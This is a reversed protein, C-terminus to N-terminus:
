KGYTTFPLFIMNVVGMLYHFKQFKECPLFKTIINAVQNNTNIYDILIKTNEYKEHVFHYQVDTHKSKKHFQIKKMLKIVNQNDGYIVIPHHQPVSMNFSLHYLWIVEQTAVCIALYKVEM